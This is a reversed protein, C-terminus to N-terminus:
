VKKSYIIAYKLSKQMNEYTRELFIKNIIKLGNKELLDILDDYKAFYTVGEYKLPGDEVSKVTDKDVYTKENDGWSGKLIHWTFFLGGKKLLRYIEKFVKNHETYTLYWTTAVDIIVDFYCDEFLIDRIDAVKFRNNFVEMLLQEELLRKKFKRIATKSINIGYVDFNERILFWGNAGQGM